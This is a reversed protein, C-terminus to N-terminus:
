HAQKRQQQQHQKLECYLQQQNTNLLKSIQAEKDKMLNRVAKWMQKRDGEFGFMEDLLHNYQREIESFQDLQQATLNLIASLKKIDMDSTGLKHQM